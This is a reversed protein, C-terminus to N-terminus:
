HSQSGPVGDPPTSGERVLGRGSDLAGGPGVYEPFCMEVDGALLRAPPQVRGRRVSAECCLLSPLVSDSAM